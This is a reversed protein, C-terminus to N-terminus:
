MRNNGNFHNFGFEGFLVYLRPRPGHARRRLAPGPPGHQPHPSLLLLGQLHHQADADLLERLRLVGARGLGVDDVVIASPADRVAAHQCGPVCM